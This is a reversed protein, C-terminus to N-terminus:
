FEIHDKLHPFFKLFEKFVRNTYDEKINKYEQGRKGPRSNEWIKFQDFPMPIIIQITQKEKYREEWSTDKASPFSVYFMPIKENKPNNIFKEHTKDFNYDKYFWCNHKPLKLDEATGKLGLYLCITSTSPSVNNM